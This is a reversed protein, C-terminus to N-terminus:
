SINKEKREILTREVRLAEMEKKKITTTIEIRSV